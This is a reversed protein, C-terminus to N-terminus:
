LNIYSDYVNPQMKHFFLKMSEMMKQEDDSPQAPKSETAINEPIKNPQDAKRLLENTNEKITKLPVPDKKHNSNNSENVSRSSYSNSPHMTNSEIKQTRTKNIKGNTDAKSEPSYNDYQVSLRLPKFNQVTLENANQEELSNETINLSKVESKQLKIRTSNERETKDEESELENNTDYDDTHNQESHSKSEPFNALKTPRHKM